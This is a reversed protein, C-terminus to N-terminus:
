CVAEGATSDAILYYSAGRVNHHRPLDPPSPEDAGSQKYRGTRLLSRVSKVTPSKIAIARACAQELGEPGYQRALKRLVDCAPLGLAPFRREFQATVVQLLGPGVSEAWALMHQPTRRAYARHAPPQHQADTTHGGETGQTDRAHTAVRAHRHFIEVTRHTVRAEVRQGVLRHPVSYWHKDVHVHYDPGVTQLACWSACEYRQAPLAALATREAAEFRERRSCGLKKMNRHNLEEGLRRIEANLDELSFFQQNRLRALIWRQAIQVAVEVKGKDKPHRVRAPMIALDYHRAFELYTRNLVPQVGPKIVAAKLNDPVIIAPAGGFYALMQVNAEIWDGISQTRTALAFTLNSYGLAGVFLEVVVQNGTQPDVYHPRKGSYDVFAKRGPEHAQRMSLKLSARYQRYHFTFQSYSLAEEALTERYEQWLLQLTVGPRALEAHILSFDPMRKRALHHRTRNFRGELEAVPLDRLAEWTQGQQRCLQRYRRVTNKTVAAAHAIERDSLPTSLVLRVIDQLKNM